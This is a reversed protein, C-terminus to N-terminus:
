SFFEVLAQALEAPREVAVLHGCEPIRVLTVDGGEAVMREAEEASLVRSEEAHVVLVPQRLDQLETWRDDRRFPWRELFFPDHKKALGGGEVPRTSLAAIAELTAETARPALRRDAEVAEAGNAFAYGLPLVDTEGLESSPAIDVIALRRVLPETQATLALAVLGGSSFGVIDLEEIGLRALVELVDAVHEDTGYLGDASWQSDGYGRFDLALVRGVESLAPAVDHWMWASGAVGHLLLVPLGDGGYDLLHLRLDRVSLFRHQPPAM